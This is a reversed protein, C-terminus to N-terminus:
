QRDPWRWQKVNKHISNELDRQLIRSEEECYTWFQPSAEDLIELVDSSIKAAILTTVSVDNGQNTAGKM